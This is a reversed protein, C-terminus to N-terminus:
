AQLASCSFKARNESVKQNRKLRAGRRRPPKPTRCPAPTQLLQGTFGAMALSQARFM